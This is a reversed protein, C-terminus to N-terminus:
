TSALLERYVRAIERVNRELGFQARVHAAGVRGMRARLSPDRALRVLPEVMDAVRASPVLYGSTGHQVVEVTGVM